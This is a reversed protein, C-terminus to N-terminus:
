ENPPRAKHSNKTTSIPQDKISVQEDKIASMTEPKVVSLKVDNVNSLQEDKVASVKVDKVNSLQKDKVASLKFDNVNSVQEDKTASMKVDKVNSVQEDKTASMKVDKVNSVQKDKVASLKFDNVYSVQEDKVASLKVDNVNSVQEDKVASLKFDNVKSVQEDKATSMKVDKVNSVQEDKVNSVKVDKVNSVKVDKVNSVKVDKVNSVQEDKVNSVQEDKVASVKVDKVNSAQKGKVASVKVDKVNSAQKGKAKSVKRKKVRPSKEHRLNCWQPLDKHLHLHMRITQVLNSTCWETKLNAQFIRLLVSTILGVYVQTKVANPSTGLFSQIILNQKILKFFAEIQWRSQYANAIVSSDLLFNNTFFRMVRSKRKSKKAEEVWYTVVRLKEPYDSRSKATALQITEDSIVYSRPEEGEKPKGDKEPVEHSELVDYRMNDKVRVVFFIRSKHWRYLMEFDIYARDLVAVSNPPLKCIPDVYEFVKNDHMKADTIHAWIPLNTDHHFMTHVKIGGKSRRYFAWPFLKQSLDITSSDFSILLPKSKTKKDLCKHDDDYDVDINVSLKPIGHTSEACIDQAIVSLSKFIEEFVEYNRNTNAYSITSRGPLYPLNLHNAEGQYMALGEELDRLSDIGSLQAFVMVVLHTWTDFKKVNRDSDYRDYIQNLNILKLPELFQAFGSISTKLSKPKPNIFIPNGFLDFRPPLNELMDSDFTSDSM